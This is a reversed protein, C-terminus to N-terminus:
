REIKDRVAEPHEETRMTWLRTGPAPAHAHSRLRMALSIEMLGLAIALTGILWAIALAGAAPQTLVLTGVVITLAGSAALLWENALQKRLAMAQVIRLGGAVVAWVGMVFLLTMATLGPRTLAAVGVLVGAVAELGLFWRPQPPQKAFAIVGSLIGDALAYLGFLLVLSLVTAGPWLIALVGFLIAFAGRVALAPWRSAMADRM